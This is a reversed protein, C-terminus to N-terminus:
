RVRLERLSVRKAGNGVWQTGVESFGYGDHFRRSAENPPDIDLECVVRSVGTERAFGLLDDYLMRALGKGQHPSGVIVRDVYLFPGRDDFWRYNPSAYDSGERLALIFAVVRGGSEVVRHYPSQAHLTALAIADLDSAFHVWESNLRLIDGFDAESAPRVAFGAPTSPRANLAEGM